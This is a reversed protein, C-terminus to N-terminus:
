QSAPQSTTSNGLNVGDVFTIVKKNSPRYLIVKATKDENLYILLVDGNQANKFIVPSTKALKEADNVTSLTPTQDVPLDLLQGLEAEYQDVENLASNQQQTQATTGPEDSATERNAVAIILLILLVLSAGAIVLSKKSVHIVRHEQQDSASVQQEVPQKAPPEQESGGTEPSAEVKTGEDQNTKGDELGPTDQQDDSLEDSKENVKVKAM